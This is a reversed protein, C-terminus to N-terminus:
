PINPLLSSYPGCSIACRGVEIHSSIGDHTVSHLSYWSRNNFPRVFSTLFKRSIKKKWSACSFYLCFIEFDGLFIDEPSRFAKRLLAQLSTVSHLSSWLYSKCSVNQLTCLWRFITFFYTKSDQLSSSCKQIPIPCNPNLFNKSLKQLMIFIKSITPPTITPPPAM